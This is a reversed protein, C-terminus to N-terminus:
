RGITMRKKIGDDLSSQRQENAWTHRKPFLAHFAFCKRLTKPPNKIRLHFFPRRPPSVSGQITGNRIEPHSRTPHAEFAVVNHTNGGGGGVGGQFHCAVCSRANYVPGLGDGGAMPDHPKWSHEFLVLGTAKAEVSARPGRLVPLGPMVSWLVWAGLLVPAAFWLRRTNRASRFSIM